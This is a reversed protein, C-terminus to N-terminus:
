RRSPRSADAVRDDDLGHGAAAALAHADDLAGLVKSGGDSGRPGFRPRREAVRADVELAPDGTGRCM